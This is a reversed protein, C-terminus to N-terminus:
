GLHSSQTVWPILKASAKSEVQFVAECDWNLHNLILCFCRPCDGAEVKLANLTPCESPRRVTARTGSCRLQPSRPGVVSVM